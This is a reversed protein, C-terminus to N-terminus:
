ISPDLLKTQGVIIKIKIIDVLVAWAPGIRVKVNRETSGVYSGLRKFYDFINIPQGKVVLPDNPQLIFSQNLRM